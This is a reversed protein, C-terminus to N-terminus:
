GKVTWNLVVVTRQQGEKSVMSGNIQLQQTASIKKNNM